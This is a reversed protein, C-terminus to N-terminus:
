SWLDPSTPGEAMKNKMSWSTPDLNSYCFVSRKSLPKKCQNQLDFGYVSSKMGGFCFIGPFIQYSVMCVGSSVNLKWFLTLLVDLMGCTPLWWQQQHRWITRWHWSWMMWWMDWNLCWNGSRWYSAGDCLSFCLFLTGWHWFCWGYSVKESVFQWYSFKQIPPLRIPGWYHCCWRIWIWLSTHWCRWLNFSAPRLARRWM